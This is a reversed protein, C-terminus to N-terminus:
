CASDPQNHKIQGWNLKKKALDRLMGQRQATRRSVRRSTRKRKREEKSVEEKGAWDGVRERSPMGHGVVSRSSAEIAIVRPSSLVHRRQRAGVDGQAECNRAVEGREEGVARSVEGHRRAMTVVRAVNGHERRSVRSTGSETKRKGALKMKQPGIVV